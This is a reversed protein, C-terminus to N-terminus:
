KSFRISLISNPVALKSMWEKSPTNHFIYIIKSLKLLIGKNQHLPTLKSEQFFKKTCTFNVNHVVTKKLTRPISKELMQWSDILRNILYTSKDNM